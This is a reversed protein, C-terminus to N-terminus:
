WIIIGSFQLPFWKLSCFLLKGTFDQAVDLSMYFYSQVATIFWSCARIASGPSKIICNTYSMIAASVTFAMMAAFVEAYHSLSQSVVHLSFTHSASVFVWSDNWNWDMKVCPPYILMWSPFPWKIKKLSLQKESEAMYFCIDTFTNLFYKIFLRAM